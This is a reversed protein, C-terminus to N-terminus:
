PGIMIKEHLVNKRFLFRLEGTWHRSPICANM